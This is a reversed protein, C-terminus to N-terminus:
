SAEGLSLQNTEVAISGHMNERQAVEGRRIPRDKAAARGGRGRHAPHAVTTPSLRARLADADIGLVDCISAFSFLWGRCDSRMWTEAEAALQRTCHHRRRRGREICLMADALIALMLAHAGSTDGACRAGWGHQAPLVVDPALLPMELEDGM